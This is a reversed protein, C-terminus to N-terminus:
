MPTWPIVSPVYVISTTGSGERQSCSAAPSPQMTASYRTRTLPHVRLSLRGLGAAEGLAASAAGAIGASDDRLLNAVVRNGGDNRATLGHQAETQNRKRLGRPQAKRSAKAGMRCKRSAEGLEAARPAKGRKWRPCSREWGVAAGSASQAGERRCGSIPDTSLRLLLRASETPPRCWLCRVGEWGREGGCSRPM